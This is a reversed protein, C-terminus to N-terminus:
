ASEMAMDDVYVNIPGVPLGSGAELASRVRKRVERALPPVPSNTVRVHINAVIRGDEHGIGVGQVEVGPGYTAEVYGVGPSIGLVGPVSLASQEAARALAVDNM